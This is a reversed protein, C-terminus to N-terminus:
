GVTPLSKSIGHLLAMIPMNLFSNVVHEGLDLEPISCWFAHADQPWILGVELLGVHIQM